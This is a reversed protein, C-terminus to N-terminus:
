VAARQQASCFRADVHKKPNGGTQNEEQSTSTPATVSAAYPTKDMLNNMIHRDLADLRREISDLRISITEIRHLAATVTSQSTQPYMVHYGDSLFDEACKKGM